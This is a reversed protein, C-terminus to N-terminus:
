SEVQQERARDLANDEPGSTPVRQARSDRVRRWALCAVSSRYAGGPSLDREELPEWQGNYYIHWHGDEHDSKYWQDGEVLHGSPIESGARHIIVHTRKTPDPRAALKAELKAKAEDGYRGLLILEEKAHHLAVVLLTGDGSSDAHEQAEILDRQCQESLLERALDSLLPETM